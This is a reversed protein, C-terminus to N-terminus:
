LILNKKHLSLAGGASMYKTKACSNIIHDIAQLAFNWTMFEIIPKLGYM